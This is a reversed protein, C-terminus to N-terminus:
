HCEREEKLVLGEHGCECCEYDDPDEFSALSWIEGCEPCCYGILDREEDSCNGKEDCIIEEEFCMGTESTHIEVSVRDEMCAEALTICEDSNQQPYGSITCSTASWAFMVGLNFTRKEDSAASKFYESIENRFDERSEEVFSRAFYKRGPITSIKDSTIFRDSFALAAECTGTVDVSGIAWNPM